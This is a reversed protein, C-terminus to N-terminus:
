KLIRACRTIISCGRRYPNARARPKCNYYSNGRHNCPVRNKLLARYSLYQRAAGLVRRSTESQMSMEEDEEILDGVLGDGGHIYGIGVDADLSKLEWDSDPMFASSMSAAAFLLLVVSLIKLAM